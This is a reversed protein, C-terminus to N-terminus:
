LYGHLLTMGLSNMRYSVNDGFAPCDIYFEHSDPDTPKKGRLMTVAKKKFANPCLVIFPKNPDKDDMYSLMQDNCLGDVDDVRVFIRDLMENGMIGADPACKSCTYITHFVDKILARDCEKFYKPFIKTDSDIGNLVYACLEMADHFATEMKDLQNPPPEVTQPEGRKVLYGYAPRM